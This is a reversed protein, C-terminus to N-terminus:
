ILLLVEHLGHIASWFTLSGNRGEDTFALSRPQGQNHWRTAINYWSMRNTDPFKQHVTPNQFNSRDGSTHKTNYIIYSIYIYINYICVYKYYLNYM